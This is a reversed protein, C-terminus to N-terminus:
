FGFDDSDKGNYSIYALEDTNIAFWKNLGLLRFLLEQEGSMKFNVTFNTYADEEDDEDLFYQEIEFTFGEHMIPILKSDFIPDNVGKGIEHQIFKEKIAMGVVFGDKFMDLDYQVTAEIFDKLTKMNLKNGERELEDLWINFTETIAENTYVKRKVYNLEATNQLLKEIRTIGTKTTM